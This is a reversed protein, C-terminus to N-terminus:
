RLVTGVAVNHGRLYDAAPMKKRGEPQIELLYLTGEGCAVALRGQNGVITGPMADQSIELAAAKHIVIHKGELIAFTGPWPNLGRVRNFIERASRRWDIHGDGKKLIPAHTARTRDQPVPKIMSKELGEITKMLLEAGMPALRDQLQASTETEGIHTRRSLLIDGADVEMTIKQTTVGTEREGNVIAWAIPAAGRYKPLLSAHVNVCGHPPIQLVSSPLIKGYAVVVILESSLSHIHEIVQPEKVSPPQYLALGLRVAAEAVPCPTIQRGRGAPKDPQTIVGVVKHRSAALADLSPVAFAGSGMFVIRM